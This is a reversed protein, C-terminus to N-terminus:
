FVESDILSALKILPDGTESLRQHWQELDFLGPQVM